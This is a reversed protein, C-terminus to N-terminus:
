KSVFIEKQARRLFVLGIVANFLIFFNHQVLGFASMEAPFEPFLVVWMSVAVARFPGPISAGFFIVPLLGLMQLYSLEVGFLSLAEAYVIVAGLLAPSRLLLIIFYQRLRAQRFAYLIDRERLKSNPLILGRFYLYFLTFTVLIGLGVWPLLRFVEPLQNWQLSLGINAWSSLYLLECVMIFLMSSGLKWGPVGERRNLYVAMAGKGLQENLISLIYTSARVPLIDTYSVKANFWNIVRWVVLSDVAFFFLSYPVMLALWAFWNVSAFVNALYAIVTMDQAAAPGAMRTYLFAFCALTVVWPLLKQILSTKAKVGTDPQNNTPQNNTPQDNSPEPAPM